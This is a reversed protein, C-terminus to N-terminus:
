NLKPESVSFVGQKREPQSLAARGADCMVKNQQYFAQDFRPNDPVCDGWAEPSNEMSLFLYESNQGVEVSSDCREVWLESECFIPTQAIPIAVITSVTSFKQLVGNEDRYNLFFRFIQANTQADLEKEATYGIDNWIEPVLLTFGTTTDTYAGRSEKETKTLAYGAVAVVLIITLLVPLLLRRYNRM